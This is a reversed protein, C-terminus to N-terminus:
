PAPAGNPRACAGSPNADLGGWVMDKVTFNITIPVKQNAVRDRNYRDPRHAEDELVQVALEVAEDWASSFDPDRRM